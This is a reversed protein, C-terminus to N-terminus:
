GASVTARVRGGLRRVAAWDGDVMGVPQLSVAARPEDGQSAPTPGFFVCFWGTEDHYGLEGVAMVERGREGHRGLDQDANGYYEEGWRGLSLNFPLRSALARGAQSDNFEGTLKISGLDIVIAQPM